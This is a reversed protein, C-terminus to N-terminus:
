FFFMKRTWPLLIGHKAPSPVSHEPSLLPYPPSVHFRGTLSLETQGKFALADPRENGPVGTHAPVKHATM